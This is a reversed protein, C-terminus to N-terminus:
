SGMAGRKFADALDVLERPVLEAGTRADIRTPITDRLVRWAELALVADRARGERKASLWAKGIKYARRVEPSM